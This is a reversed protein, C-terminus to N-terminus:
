SLITKYLELYQAAVLTDSFKKVAHERANKCLKSYRSFDSLVWQIGASFDETNFPKALWGNQKHNVIDALGCTDFAIVPLGCSMAEVGANPLNDIRSPIALADVASYLIQLSIDDHLHGVYHIPFGIDHQNKPTNEGFVVLHLDPMQSRLHELADLLLDFGKHPSRVTGFAGFALLPIDDPLNFLKRAIKKDLPSWRSVDIANPIVSIPWNKMIQSQSACNALWKSPTVIHIPKKWAKLKREWTWRNLDFRSEDNPRNSKLYGDRWRFDDSCHEAGCFAWMDHLTWVLPKNIRSIDEVSIMEGNIWNLHIIDADSSNLRKPWSSPIIAPSHLISNGTKLLRTAIGGLPSRLLSLAKNFNGQPGVVTWDGSYARNVFMQSDVGHLRLAHHIRWTARAAGGNIDSHNVMAIKM